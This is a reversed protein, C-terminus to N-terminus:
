VRAVRQVTEVKFTEPNWSRAPVLAITVPDPGVDIRTLADKLAAGPGRGVAAGEETWSGDENQILVKYETPAVQEKPAAGNKTAEAM